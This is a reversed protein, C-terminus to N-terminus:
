AEARSRGAGALPNAPIAGGLFPLGVPEDHMAAGAALLVGATGTALDMSLRLLREGPFALHGRYGIAHWSLADLQRPVEPDERGWGGARERCLYAIIGARGGFLGSHRHVPSRAALDLRTRAAALEPDARYHLLEGLVWCVGVAGGDLYPTTRWGEDIQLSGDAQPVCRRLDRRVAGEALDLWRVQGTREFLRLFLLAPGSAGRMLGAAGGPESAQGPMREAVLAGTGLAGDLDGLYMQNLGIGALGGYLDAGLDTRRGAEAARELVELAVDHHGLHALVHAVGHLGDYFGPRADDGPRLARDILWREHDPFRGAGTVDLAYLVGAAGHALGLGAGDFQAPDGPFLRDDREPTASALIADAMSARMERWGAPAPATRTAGRGAVRAAPRLFGEPMPFLGRIVEALEGAKGPDLLFLETLPLFLAFRLRALAHRDADLGSVASPAAFAPDGPGPGAAEGVPRACEFDVLTIGGDPRVIIDGLTIGGHVLGREHIRTVADEVAACIGTAWSVYGGLDAGGAGALPYRRAFLTGLPEGPVRELVLYGRGGATFRGMLRPAARLGALRELAAAEREQRTIADAGSADLGAYPRAEKLVVQEGTRPDRALHVGGGNYARLVGEVEYPLPTAAQRAQRLLFAPLEVWSPPTFRPGRRDPVLAGEPDAIVPERRGEPSVRYREAIGGYRVHLPAAGYRLDGPVDPGRRGDLLRELDALARALEDEGSPYVTVFKGAAGPDADKANHLRLLPLSRVFKFALGAGLCHRVTTELIAEADDLCASVHIKWGQDPLSGSLPRCTVWGARVTRAWGAPVGGRAQEFDLGPGQLGSHPSDYFIPDTRCHLEYRKGM